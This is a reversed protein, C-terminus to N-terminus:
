PAAGLALWSPGDGGRYRLEVALMLGLERPLRLVLRRAARPDLPALARGGIRVLTHDDLPIGTCRRIADRTSGLEGARPPKGIRQSAAVLRPGIARAAATFASSGALAHALQDAGVEALWALLEDRGLQTAHALERPPGAITPPMSPFTACAWRALWTATADGGGAAVARRAAVPLGVLAAEIWSSDIARLGAPVTARLEAAWAARTARRQPAPLAELESAAAVAERGLGGGLRALVARDASIAALGRGLM